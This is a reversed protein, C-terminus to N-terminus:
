RNKPLTITWKRPSKELISYSTFFKGWFQCHLTCPLCYLAYGCLVYTFHESNSVRVSFYWFNLNKEAILITTFKGIKNWFWHFYNETFVTPKNWMTNIKIIILLIQLIWLRYIRKTLSCLHNSLNIFGPNKNLM